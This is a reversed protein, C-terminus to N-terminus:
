SRASRRAPTTGLATALVAPRTAAALKDRVDLEVANPRISLVSEISSRPIADPTNSLLVTSRPTTARLLEALEELRHGSWPDVDILLLDVTTIEPNVIGGLAALQLTLTGKWANDSSAVHFTFAASPPPPNAAFDTAAIEDRGATWPLGDGAGNLLRREFALRHAV